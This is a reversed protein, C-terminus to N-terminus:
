YCELIRKALECETIQVKNAMVDEALTKLARRKHTRKYWAASAARGCRACHMQLGDPMSSNKNFKSIPLVRGCHACRKFEM